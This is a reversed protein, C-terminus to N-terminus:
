KKTKLNPKNRKLWNKYEPRTKWNEIFQQYEPLISWLIRDPDLVTLGGDYDNGEIGGEM